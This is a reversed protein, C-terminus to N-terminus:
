GKLNKLKSFKICKNLRKIIDKSKHLDIDGLKIIGWSDEGCHQLISIKITRLDAATYWSDYKLKPRDKMYYMFNDSALGYGGELDFAIYKAGKPALRKLLAIIKNTKM